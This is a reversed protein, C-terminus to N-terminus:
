KSMNYNQQFNLAAGILNADNHFACCKISPMIEEIGEKQLLRFLRTTLEEALEKRKSIGGGIVIMEPDFTVQISYLNNAIVQYMDSLIMRAVVDGQGDLEFLNKGDLHLSLYLWHM